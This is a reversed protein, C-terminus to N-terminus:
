NDAVPRVACAFARGFSYQPAVSWSTLLLTVGGENSVPFASYFAGYNGVNNLTGTSGYRYGAAPFFITSSGINTKFNYGKSFSGEANIESPNTSSNGTTVFGTFAKANPVHFGAPCPDYITKVVDDDSYNSMSTNNAAWTNAYIQNYFEQPHTSIAYM